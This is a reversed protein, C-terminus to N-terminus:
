HLKNGYDNVIGEINDIIKINITLKRIFTYRKTESPDAYTQFYLRFNLLRRYNYTLKSNKFESM